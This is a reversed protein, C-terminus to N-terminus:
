KANGLSSNLPCRSHPPLVANLILIDLHLDKKLFEQAFNRVSAFSTLDMEMLEITGTHAVTTDLLEKKVKEGKPINRVPLIVTANWEVLKRVTELGIGSTGGTVIAVKGNLDVPQFSIPNLVFQRYFVTVAVAILVLFVSIRKFM